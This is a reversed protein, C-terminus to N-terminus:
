IRESYRPALDITLDHFFLALFIECNRQPQSLPGRNKCFVTPCRVDASDPPDSLNEARTGSKWKMRPGNCRSATALGNWHRVLISASGEASLPNAELVATM